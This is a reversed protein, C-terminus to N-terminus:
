GRDELMSNELLHIAESKNIGHIICRYDAGKVTIIAIYSINLFLMTLDNCVSDQFKFM